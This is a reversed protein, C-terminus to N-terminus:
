ELLTTKMKTVTTKMEPQNKKINEVEKSFKESQKDDIKRGPRTLMTIDMVKIEKDPLISVQM